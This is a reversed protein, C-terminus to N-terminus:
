IGSRKILDSTYRSFELLLREAVLQGDLRTKIYNRSNGLTCQTQVARVHDKIKNFTTYLTIGGFIVNAEYYKNWYTVQLEYRGMKANCSQQVRCGNWKWNLKLGDRKGGMRDCNRGRLSKDEYNFLFKVSM